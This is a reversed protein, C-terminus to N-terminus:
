GHAQAISRQMAGDADQKTHHAINQSVQEFGASRVVYDKM